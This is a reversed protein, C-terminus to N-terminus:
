IPQFKEPWHSLGDPHKTSEPVIDRGAVGAVYEIGDEGIFKGILLRYKQDPNKPVFRGKAPPGNPFVERDHETAVKKEPDYGYAIPKGHDDVSALPPCPRSTGAGAGAEKGKGPTKNDDAM